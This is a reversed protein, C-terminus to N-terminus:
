ALTAVEGLQQCGRPHEAGHCGMPLFPSPLEKGQGELLAAEMRM